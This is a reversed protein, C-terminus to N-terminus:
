NNILLDGSYDSLGTSGAQSQEYGPIHPWPPGGYFYDLSWQGFNYLFTYMADIVWQQTSYRRTGGPPPPAALFRDVMEGFWGNARNPGYRLYRGWRGNEFTYSVDEALYERAQLSSDSYHFNLVTGRLLWFDRRSGSAITTLTNTTEVSYPATRLFDVNELVVRCFLAGLDVRQIKLDEAAGQWAGELCAPVGGAASTWMSEFEAATPGTTRAPLPAGVSSVLVMRVRNPQASGAATQVYPLTTPTAGVQCAPDAWVWRPNGGATRQVRELAVALEAGLTAPVNTAAPLVKSRVAFQQLTQAMTALSNAEATRAAMRMRTLINEAVVAALVALIALVAVTEILTFGRATDGVPARRVAPTQRCPLSPSKM